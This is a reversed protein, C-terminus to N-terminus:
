ANHIQRNAYLQKLCLYEGPLQSLKLISKLGLSWPYQFRKTVIPAFLLFQNNNSNMNICPKKKLLIAILKVMGKELMYVTQTFRNVNKQVVDVNLKDFQSATWEDVLRSWEESSEWLLRRLQLDREVESLDNLVQQASIGSEAYDSM